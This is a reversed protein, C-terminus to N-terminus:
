QSSPLLDHIDVELDGLGKSESNCIDHDDRTDLTESSNYSVNDNSLVACVEPSSSLMVTAKSVPPRVVEYYFTLPPLEPEVDDVMTSLHILFDFLEQATVDM